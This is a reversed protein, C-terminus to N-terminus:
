VCDETIVQFWFIHRLFFPSAGDTQVHTIRRVPTLWFDFSKIIIYGSKKKERRTETSSVSVTSSNSKLSTHSYTQTEQKSFQRFAGDKDPNSLGSYELWHLFASPESAVITIIYDRKLASDCLLHTCVFPFNGRRKVGGAVFNPSNQGQLIHATIRVSYNVRSSSRYLECVCLHDLAPQFYQQQRQIQVRVQGISPKGNSSKDSIHKYVWFLMEQVTKQRVAKLKWGLFWFGCIHLSWVSHLEGERSGDFRM